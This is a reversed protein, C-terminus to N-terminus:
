DHQHIDLKHRVFLAKMQDVKKHISEGLCHPKFEKEAFLVAGNEREARDFITFYNNMFPLGLVTQDPWSPLYVFQFSIQNPAPAHTQWYTEPAMTLRITQGDFGEFCFHLDPWEALNVQDMDIGKEVGQFTRFPHLIQEFAPNHKILDAFLGDFLRKPLIVMSAGSDVIANSVYGRVDKSALAPAAIPKSEGVQLSHLHVNYYKDDLVKVEAFEGEYLHEHLRPHGLVFVGNNLPHQRLEETSKHSDTQYISSRHIIFAFQNGVVGHQELQTFYPTIHDHPFQRLFTRFEGITDDAQDAALFWPHTVAPNVGNETLYDKLDYAKNLARYALGLLGDALAFSDSLEKKAVAVHVDRLHAQFFGHGMSVSTKVVPGYWAGMGYSVTQAFSTPSLHTDQDTDYDEHQIVMTSSGSDLVLNAPQKHSGIHVQATYDGKAYVNTIPVLVSKTM